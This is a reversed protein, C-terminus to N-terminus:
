GDRTMDRRETEDYGGWIGYEAPRALGIEMCVLRARRTDPNAHCDWCRQKASRRRTAWNEPDDNKDVFWDDPNADPQQCPTLILSM